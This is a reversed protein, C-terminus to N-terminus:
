EYDVEFDILQVANKISAESVSEGSILKAIEVVKEEATLITARAATKGNTEFKAVNINQEGLAAIQPLHTIAIIQRSKSLKLMNLGVKQAIRGSIGTDIEDFVMVPVKDKGALISKIALMVRSIEGGSATEALSKPRSGKNASILFEIRETGGQTATIYEGGLYAAPATLIAEASLKNNQSFNVEFEANEFGLESLKAIIERSFVESKMRRREELAAAKKGLDFTKAKIEEVLLFSRDDFQDILNIQELNSDLLELTEDISGYKKKLRKLDSSRSRLREIKAPSIEINRFFDKAYASIEKVAIIMSELEPKFEGFHPDYEDLNEIIKQARQFLSHISTDTESMIGALESSLSSLYESNELIKLEAEIELDEGKKPMIKKIEEAQYKLIDYKALLDKKRKLMSNYQSIAERLEFYVTQYDKLLLSTEAFADLVDVHGQPNLLSQHEHQGHFDVLLAGLEKLKSVSAPSDNIFCRSTGKQSIERRVILENGSLDEDEGLVTQVSAKYETIDFFCEIIAKTEGYRIMDSSARGGQALEIADVIISKGAGTEGTLINLGKSLSLRLEDIIAYNKIYIQQLM